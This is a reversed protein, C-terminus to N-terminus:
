NNGAHLNYQHGPQTSITDKQINDQFQQFASASSEWTSVSKIHHINCRKETGDQTILIVTNGNVIASVRHAFTYAADFTGKHHDKVFVLQGLKLDSAKTVKRNSIPEAVRNEVLLKTHLM